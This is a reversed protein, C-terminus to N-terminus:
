RVSGPHADLRATSPPPPRQPRDTTTSAPGQRVGVFSARPPSMSISLPVEEEAEDGAEDEEVRGPVAVPLRGKAAKDDPPM